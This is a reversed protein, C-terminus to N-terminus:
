KTKREKVDEDIKARWKKDVSGTARVQCVAKSLVDYSIKLGKKDCNYEAANAENIGFKRAETQVDINAGLFIFEWGLEKKKDIMRRISTYTYEESSNEMGDTTIVMMVKEPLFEDKLELHKADIHNITFGVADLLATCGQPCYDKETLKKVDKIPIRDFISYVENNFVALTVIAEGEEKKQKEILSNFGGITDQTLGSMSGSMDLVFVLETLGKKM